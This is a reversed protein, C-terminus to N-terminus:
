NKFKKRTPVYFAAGCIMALAASLLGWRLHLLLIKEEYEEALLVDRNIVDFGLAQIEQVATGGLERAKMRVRYTESASLEATSAQMVALPEGEPLTDCSRFRLVRSGSDTQCQMQTEAPLEQQYPLLTMMASHNCYVTQASDPTLGCGASLYQPSLLTVSLTIENNSVKIESQRSVAQVDDRLKLQMVAPSDGASATYQSLILEYPADLMTAYRVIRGATVALLVTGLLFCLLGAKIGDSQRRMRLFRQIANM